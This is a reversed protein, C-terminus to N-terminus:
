QTSCSVVWKEISRLSTESIFDGPELVGYDDSLRRDVVNSYHYVRSSEPADCLWKEHAMDLDKLYSVPIGEEGERGRGHIREDCTDPDARVYLFGSPMVIESAVMDFWRHYLTMELEDLMGEAKLSAAFVNADTLICRETIFVNSDPRGATEWAAIAKKLNTARTLLATNQFTYSWRRKDTYFLQLLSEGRENKLSTWLDVPEEIFHWDPHYLKLSRFLTSKGSGINGEISILVPKSM